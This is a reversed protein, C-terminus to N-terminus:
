VRVTWIQERALDLWVESKFPTTNLGANRIFAMAEQYSRFYKLM